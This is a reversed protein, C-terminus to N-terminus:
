GYGEDRVIHVIGIQFVVLKGDICKNFNKPKPCSLLADVAMYRLQIRQNLSWIANTTPMDTQVATYRGSTRLVHSM